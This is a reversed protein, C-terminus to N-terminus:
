EKMKVVLWVKMRLAEDDGYHALVLNISLM